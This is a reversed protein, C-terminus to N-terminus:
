KSIQESTGPKTEKKTIGECLMFLGFALFLAGGALKLVRPSIFRNLVCGALVGIATSLTLAVVAAIFITWRSSANASQAMVALQTKDGLEAVFIILFTSIFSPWNM